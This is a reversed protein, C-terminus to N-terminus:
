KKSTKYKGTADNCLKVFLIQDKPDNKKIFGFLVTKDSLEMKGDYVFDESSMIIENKIGNM